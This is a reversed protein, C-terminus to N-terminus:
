RVGPWSKVSKLVNRINSIEKRDPLQLSQRFISKVILMPCFRLFMHAAAIHVCVCLVNQNIGKASM